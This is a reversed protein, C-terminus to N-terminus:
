SRTSAPVHPHDPLKVLDPHRGQWADIEDRARLVEEAQDHLGRRRCLAHYANVAGPALQDKGKIVFVPMPDEEAPYTRDVQEVLAVARACTGCGDPHFAVPGLTGEAYHLVAAATQVRDM